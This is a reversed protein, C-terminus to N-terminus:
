FTEAKAKEVEPLHVELVGNKFSARIREAHV